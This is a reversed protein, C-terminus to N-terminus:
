RAGPSISQASPQATERPGLKFEYGLYGAFVNDGHIGRGFSALLAHEAGLPAIFGLGVGTRSEEGITQSGSHYIEVGVTAGGSLEREVALGSFWFDQNGPGPNFWRGGGGFVTWAGYNKQLWLPLLFQPKGAGGPGESGFIVQPYLACQPRGAGEPIFRYKAGLETSTLGYAAPTTSARTYSLPLSASLQLNRAAGFNVEVLPFSGSVDDADHEYQAAAYIEYHRFEVPEPDDTFFPPGARAVGPRVLLLLSGLM